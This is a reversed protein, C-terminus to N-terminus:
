HQIFTDTLKQKIACIFNNVNGVGQNVWVEQFGLSSFLDRLLSAWNVANPISEIDNLMVRYILKVYKHENASILKLWYKIILLYRRTLFNTRGLEGQIFDNQTTKKVGLLRKCFQLHVREAANAQIFGWVECGYNLIPTKLKDFLELTHKPSHYTFKYLYRNM